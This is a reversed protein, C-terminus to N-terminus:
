RLSGAYEPCISRDNSVGIQNNYRELYVLTRSLWTGPKPRIECEPMIEELFGIKRNCNPCTIGRRCKGCSKTGPCCKHDHDVPFRRKTSGEPADCLPCKRGQETFQAEYESPSMQYRHKLWYGRYSDKVFEIPHKARSKRNAEAQKQRRIPDSAYKARERQRRHEKQEPTLNANRERAKANRILREEETM